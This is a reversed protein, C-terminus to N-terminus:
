LPLLSSSNFGSSIHRLSLSFHRISGDTFETRTLMQMLCDSSISSTSVCLNVRNKICRASWNMMMRRFGM